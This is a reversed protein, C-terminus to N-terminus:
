QRFVETRIFLLENLEKALLVCMVFALRNIDSIYFIEGKKEVFRVYHRLVNLSGYAEEPLAPFTRM